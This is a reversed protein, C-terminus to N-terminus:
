LKGIHFIMRTVAEEHKAHYKVEEIRSWIVKIKVKSHVRIALMLNNTLLIFQRLLHAVLGGFTLPPQYLLHLFFMGDIITVDVNTTANPEVRKEFDQLLKSVNKANNWRLLHWHINCFRNWTLKRKYPMTYSVALLDRIMSVSVLSKNKSTIKYNGAEFAFNKFIKLQRKIPKQYNESDNNCDQIFRDRTSYDIHNEAPFTLYIIKRLQLLL